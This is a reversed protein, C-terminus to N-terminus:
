LGKYKYCIYGIKYFQLLKISPKRSLLNKRMLPKLCKYVFSFVGTLRNNKLKIFLSLLDNQHTDIKGQEHLKLLTEAAQEKKNLYIGSEELGMHYVENNIHNVKCNNTKLLSGFYNDLGYGYHEIMSNLKIFNSKRCMFNASIIMKYPSRNRVRAEVYENKLGYRWRLEHGRTPKTKKYAFGGFVFDFNNEVENLYNDIYKEQKPMVDADLFLLWDYKASEALLQRNATRGLNVENTDLRIYELNTLALKEKLYEDHSADDRCIIEFPVKSLILQQHLEEVLPGVDVNFIPILVSIMLALILM